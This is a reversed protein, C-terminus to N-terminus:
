VIKEQTQQLGSCFHLMLASLSHLKTEAQGIMFAIKTKEIESEQTIDKKRLETHELTVRDFKKKLITM